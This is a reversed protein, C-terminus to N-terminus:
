KIILTVRYISSNLIGGGALYYHQNLHGIDRMIIKTSGNVFGMDIRHVRTISRDGTWQERILEYSFGNNRLQLQLPSQKTSKKVYRLEPLTRGDQNYFQGENKEFGVFRNQGVLGATWLLFLSLIYDRRSLCCIWM